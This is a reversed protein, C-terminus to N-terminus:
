RRASDLGESITELPYGAAEWAAFGGEINAVEKFGLGMALRAIEVSRTGDESLFLLEKNQPAESRRFRIANNPLNLSSPIRGGAYDFPMRIDVIQATGAEARQKAEAISVQRVAENTV